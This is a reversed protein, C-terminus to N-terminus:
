RFFQPHNDINIPLSFEEWGKRLLDNSHQPKFKHPDLSWTCHYVSGDQRYVNHDVSVVVAQLGQPDVASGVALLEAQPPLPDNSFAPYLFTVHDALIKDFMPPILHLLYSKSTPLILWGLYGRQPKAGVTNNTM